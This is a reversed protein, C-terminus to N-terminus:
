KAKPVGLVAGTFVAANPGGASPEKEEAGEREGEKSLTVPPQRVREARSLRTVDGAVIHRGGIRDLSFLSYAVRDGAQGGGQQNPAERRPRLPHDPQRPGWGCGLSLRLPPISAQIVM